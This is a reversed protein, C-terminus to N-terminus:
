RRQFPLPNGDAAFMIEYDKSTFLLIAEQSAAVAQCEAISKAGAAGNVIADVKKEVLATRRELEAQWYQVGEESGMQEAKALAKRSFETTAEVMDALLTDSAPACEGVLHASAQGSFAGGFIITSLLLAKKM